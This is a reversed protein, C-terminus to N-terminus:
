GKNPRVQWREDPLVVSFPAQAALAIGAGTFLNSLEDMLRDNDLAARANTELEFYKTQIQQDYAAFQTRYLLVIYEQNAATDQIRWREDRVEFRL